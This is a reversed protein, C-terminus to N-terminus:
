SDRQEEEELDLIEDPLVYGNQEAWEGLKLMMRELRDLRNDTFLTTHNYYYLVRDALWDLKTELAKLRRDTDSGPQAFGPFLDNPGPM